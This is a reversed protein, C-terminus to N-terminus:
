HRRSEAIRWITMTIDALQLHITAAEVPDDGADELALSLESLAEEYLMTTGIAAYVFTRRAAARAAGPPLENGVVRAREAAAGVDGAAEFQAAARARRRGADPALEAARLLFTAAGAHDGLESAVQAAADLTEAASESPGAASRSVHHAREI